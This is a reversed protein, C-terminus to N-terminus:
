LAAWSFRAAPGPGAGPARGSALLSGATTRPSGLRWCSRSARRIRRSKWVPRLIESAKLRVTPCRLRCRPARSTNALTALQSQHGARGRKDKAELGEGEVPPQARRVPEERHAPFSGPLNDAGRGGVGPQPFPDVRVKKTRGPGDLAQPLGAVGPGQLQVQAVGAREHGHAIEGGQRGLLGQADVLRDPELVSAAAGGLRRAAGNGGSRRVCRM